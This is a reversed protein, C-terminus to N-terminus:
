RSLFWVIMGVAAGGAVLFRWLGGRASEGPRTWFLIAGCERPGAFEFPLETRNRYIEIGELTSPQILDDITEGFTHCGPLIPVFAHFMDEDPEIVVTFTLM